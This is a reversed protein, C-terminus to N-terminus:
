RRVYVSRVAWNDEVNVNSWMTSILSVCSHDIIIITVLTYDSFHWREGRWCCEFINVGAGGAAASGFRVTHTGM